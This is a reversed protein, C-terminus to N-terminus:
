YSSAVESCTEVNLWEIFDEAAHAPGDCAAGEVDVEFKFVIQRATLFYRESLLDDGRELLHLTWKRDEGMLDRATVVLGQDLNDLPEELLQFLVSVISTLDCALM